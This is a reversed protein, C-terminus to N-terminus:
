SHFLRTNQSGKEYFTKKSKFPNIRKKYTLQQTYHVIKFLFDRLKEIIFGQYDV